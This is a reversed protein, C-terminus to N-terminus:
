KYFGAPAARGVPEGYRVIETYSNNGSQKTSSVSKAASEIDRGPTSYNLRQHFDCFRRACYTLACFLCLGVLAAASVGVIFTVNIDNSSSGGGSGPALPLTPQSTPYVFSTNSTSSPSLTTAQTGVYTPGHTPNSSMSESPRLTPITSPEETILFAGRNIVQQKVDDIASIAFYSKQTYKCFGGFFCALDWDSTYTVSSLVGFHCGSSAKQMAGGSDGPCSTDSDETGENNWKNWGQDEGIGVVRMNGVRQHNDSPSNCLEYPTEVQLDGPTNRYSGLGNAIISEEGAPLTDCIEIAIGADYADYGNSFLLAIDYKSSPAGSFNPHSWSNSAINLTRRQGNALYVIATNTGTDDLCHAALAYAYKPINNDTVKVVAGSCYTSGSTIYVDAGEDGGLLQEGTKSYSAILKRNRFAVNTINDITMNELEDLRVEKPLYTLVEEINSNTSGKRKLIDYIKQDRVLVERVQPELQSFDLALTISQSRQAKM